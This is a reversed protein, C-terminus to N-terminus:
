VNLLEEYILVSSSADGAQPNLLAINVSDPNQVLLNPYKVYLFNIFPAAAMTFAATSESFDGWTVQYGLGATLNVRCISTIPNFATQVVANRNAVPAALLSDLEATQIKWVTNIPVNYFTSNGVATQNLIVGTGDLSSIVASTPWSIQNNTTLYNGIIGLQVTSTSVGQLIQGKVFLQGRAVTGAAISIQVGILIGDTLDFALNQAARTSNTTYFFTGTTIDGGYYIRTVVRVIVSAVSSFSALSLVDGKRVPLSLQVSQIYEKSVAEAILPPPM